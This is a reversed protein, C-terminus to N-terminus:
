LERTWYCAGYASWKRKPDFMRFGCAILNNASQPNHFTESVLTKFGARRAAQVRVSILRRQIGRGRYKEIVGSLYLYATHPEKRFQGLCAFGVPVNGDRVIWWMGDTTKKREIDSACFTRRMLETLTREHTEPCVRVIKLM